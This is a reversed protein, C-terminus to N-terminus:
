VDAGLGALGHLHLDIPRYGIACGGPMSVQAKRRKALLPGMVCVSARMQRVLDYEAHCNMEDTVTIRLGGDDDRRTQVGLKNLM